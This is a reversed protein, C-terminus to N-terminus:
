GKLSIIRLYFEITVNLSQIKNRVNKRDNDDDYDRCPM